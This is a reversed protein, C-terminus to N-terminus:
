DPLDDRTLKGQISFEVNENGMDRLYFVLSINDVYCWVENFEFSIRMEPNRSGYYFHTPRRNLTVLRCEANGRMIYAPQRSCDARTGHVRIQLDQDQLNPHRLKMAM